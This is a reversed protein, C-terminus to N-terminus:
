GLPLVETIEAFLPTYKSDGKLENVLAEDEVLVFRIRAGAVAYPKDEAGTGPTAAYVAVGQKKRLLNQKSQNEALGLQVYYKGKLEKMGFIFYAANPSGDPNTTSVLYFGSHGNVATMLAEGTLAFDCYHDTVSASTFADTEMSAPFVVFLCLVLALSLIRKM